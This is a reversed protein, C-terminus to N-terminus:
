EHSAALTFFMSENFREPSSFYLYLHDCNMVMRRTYCSHINHIHAYENGNFTVEELTCMILVTAHTSNTGSALDITFCNNRELQREISVDCECSAARKRQSRKKEREREKKRKVCNVCVGGM